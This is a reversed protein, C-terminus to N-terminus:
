FDVAVGIPNSFFFFSEYLSFSRLFSSLTLPHPQGQQALALHYYDLLGFIKVCIEVPLREMKSLKVIIMFECLEDLLLM